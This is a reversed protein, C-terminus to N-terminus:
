GVVNGLCISVVNQRLVSRFFKMCQSDELEFFDNWRSNTPKKVHSLILEVERWFLAVQKRCRVCDNIIKKQQAIFSVSDNVICKLTSCTTSPFLPLFDLDCLTPMAFSILKTSQFHSDSSLGRNWWEKEGSEWLGVEVVM